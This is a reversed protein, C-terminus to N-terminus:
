LLLSKEIRLLERKREIGAAFGTLSGNKGVLRHCPVMLLIPNKGAAVGVARASMKYMGREKAITKALQSYSMTEGYPIDMLLQWVRKQFDTGNVKLKPMFDPRKGSFYTDLWEKATEIAESSSETSTEEESFMLGTLFKGDATLLIKGLPSNYLTRQM